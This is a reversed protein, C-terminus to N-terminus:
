PKNQETAVCPPPHAGIHFGKGRACKWIKIPLAPPTKSRMMIWDIGTQATKETKYSRRSQCTKM